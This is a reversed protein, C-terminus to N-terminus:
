EEIEAEIKDIAANNLAEAVLEWVGPIALLSDVGDSRAIDRITDDFREQTVQRFDM